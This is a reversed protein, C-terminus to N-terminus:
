RGGEESDAARVAAVFRAIEAADKIGPASEVGGSVDVAAPRVRRVARGVNDADLGGALVLPVPARAPLREWDFTEGTGGPVGERWSDVLLARAGGYRGIAAEVDLGPKMRVAKIWPRHFAACYAPSESGHFQLTDVPVADLVAAVDAETADVFLGVVSVFPPLVAVIAAARGADVHRPSPAYFVLGVADAGAIAAAEADEERTIGCIKIRTPTM